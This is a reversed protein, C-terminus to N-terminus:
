KVILMVEKSFEQLTEIVMQREGEDWSPRKRVFAEEQKIVLRELILANKLLYKAFEIQNPTGYFGALKVYKLHEYIYENPQLKGEEDKSCTTVLSFSVLCPFAKLISIMKLIDFSTNGILALELNQINSFITISEPIHQVWDCRSYVTLTRLMPHNQSVHTFVYRIGTSDVSHKLTILNPVASLNVTIAERTMCQFHLLKPNSLELEKTGAGGTLCFKKLLLLSGLSLKVPLSCALLILQNLNVM